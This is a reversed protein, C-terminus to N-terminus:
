SATHACCLTACRLAACRQCPGAPEDVAWVRWDEFVPSFWGGATLRTCWAVEQEEEKSVLSYVGHEVSCSLGSAGFWMRSDRVLAGAVLSLGAPAHDM